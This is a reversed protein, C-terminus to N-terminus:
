QSKLSIQSDSWSNTHGETSRGFHHTLVPGLGYM